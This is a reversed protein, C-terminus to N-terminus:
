FDIQKRDCIENVHSAVASHHFKGSKFILYAIPAILGFTCIMIVVAEIQTSNQAPNHPSTSFSYSYPSPLWINSYVSYTSVIVASSTTNFTFIRVAAAGKRSNADQLDFMTEERTGVMQQFTPHHKAYHGNMTLFVNPYAALTTKLASAWADYNGSPTIYEHTAVIISYNPYSQILTTAWNIVTSNAHYEMNIILFNHGEYTFKTATNKGQFLDSVWYPKDEMRTANFAPYNMGIWPRNPNGAGRRTCMQDHNGADWTYPINNNYLVIQAANANGWQTTDNCADVIDGTHIVMQLNFTQTNNVIGNATKIYLTPDSASLYQTDTIQMISYLQGSQDQFTASITHDAVVHDFTYSSVRGVYVGDVIVSGITFGTNPTINFTASGQYAVHTSPTIAGGYGVSSQILYSSHSVDYTGWNGTSLVGSTWTSRFIGYAELVFDGTNMNGITHSPGTALNPQTTSLFVGAAVATVIIAIVLTGHTRTLAVKSM